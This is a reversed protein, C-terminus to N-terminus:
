FFLPATLVTAERAENCASHGSLRKSLADSGLRAGTRRGFPNKSLAPVCLKVCNYPQEPRQLHLFLDTVKIKSSLLSPLCRKLVCFSMSLGPTAFPPCVGMAIVSPKASPRKRPAADDSCSESDNHQKSKERPRKDLRHNCHLQRARLTREPRRSEEEGYENMVCAGGGATNTSSAEKRHKHRMQPETTANAAGTVPLGTVLMLLNSKGQALCTLM